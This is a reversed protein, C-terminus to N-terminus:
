AACSGKQFPYVTKWNWVLGQQLVFALPLGSKIMSSPESLSDNPIVKCEAIAVPIRYWIFFSPTKGLYLNGKYTGLTTSHLRRYAYSDGPM